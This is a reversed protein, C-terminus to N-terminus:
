VQFVYWAAILLLDRHRQLQPLFVILLGEILSLMFHFTFVYEIALKNPVGM